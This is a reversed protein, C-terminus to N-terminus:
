SHATDHLRGGLLRRVERRRLEWVAMAALHLLWIRGTLEGDLVLLEDLYDVEIDLTAGPLENGALRLLEALIVTDAPDGLGLAGAMALRLRLARFLRGLLGLLTRRNQMAWRAGYKNDKKKSEKKDKKKSKREPDRDGSLRAVRLGLIRVEGGAETGWSVSFVGWAWSGCAWAMAALPLPAEEQKSDVVGRARLHFPLAIVLALLILLALFLWGLLGLLTLLLDM